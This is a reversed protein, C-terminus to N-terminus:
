RVEYQAEARSLNLLARMYEREHGPRALFRTPESDAFAQPSLAPPSLRPLRRAALLRHHRHWCLTPRRHQGVLRAIYQIKPLYTCSSPARSDGRCAAGGSQM